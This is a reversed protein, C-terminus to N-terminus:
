EVRAAQVVETCRTRVRSSTAPGESGRRSLESEYVGAKVVGLSESSGERGRAVFGSDIM